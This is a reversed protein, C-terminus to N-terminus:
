QVVVESEQYVEKGLALALKYLAKTRMRYFKRESVNLEMCIEYNYMPEIELYALTILRREIVTLKNLGGNFWTFFRECDQKHNVSKIAVTEVSSHKVNSFTPMELTYKATVSPMFQDPTTLMFTRYQRLTAEISKQTAKGDINKLLDEM